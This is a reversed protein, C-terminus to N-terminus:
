FKYQMWVFRFSNEKIAILLEKDKYDDVPVTEPVTKM